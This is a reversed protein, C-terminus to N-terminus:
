RRMGPNREDELGGVVFGIAAGDFREATDAHLFPELNQSVHPLLELQRDKGINVLRHLAFGRSVNQVNQLDRGKQRPLRIQQESGRCVPFITFTM